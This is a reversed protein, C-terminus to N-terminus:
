NSHKGKFGPILGTINVFLDYTSAGIERATFSLKELQWDEPTEGSQLVAYSDDGKIKPNARDYEEEATIEFELSVKYVKPDSTKVISIRQTATKAPLQQGLYTTMEGPKLETRINSM